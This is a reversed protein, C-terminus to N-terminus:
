WATVAVAAAAAVATHLQRLLLESYLLLPLLV